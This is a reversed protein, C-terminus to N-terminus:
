PHESEPLDIDFKRDRTKVILGPVAEGTDPDVALLASNPAADKIGAVNLAKKVANRDPAPPPPDPRRVLEPHHEEAWALFAPEDAYEWTPQQAHLKLTGNPLQLTLAGGGAVAARQYQELSREFWARERRIREVRADEWAAIRQREAAALASVEREERDLRCVHRLWRSAQDHDLPPAPETDFDVDADDALALEFEDVLASM